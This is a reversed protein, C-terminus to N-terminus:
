QLLGGEECDASKARVPLAARMMEELGILHVAEREADTELEQTSGSRAFLYYYIMWGDEDRLLSQTKGRLNELM